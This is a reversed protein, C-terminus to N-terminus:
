QDEKVVALKASKAKSDVCLAKFQWKGNPEMVQQYDTATAVKQGTADLLDLEIKVGFRQRNTTNTLTGVAYTLSSGQTQDIKIASIRFGASTAPDEHVPAPPTNTAVPPAQAANQQMKLAIRKKTLNLAVLIAGFGLAVITVAIVTWIITRRPLLPEQPPTALLLETPKGCHPCDITMGAAEAPFEIHGHCLQCDGKLYKTRTM